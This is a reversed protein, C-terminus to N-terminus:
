PTGGLYMDLFNDTLIHGPHCVIEVVGGQPKSIM